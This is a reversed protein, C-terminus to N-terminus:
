KFGLGQEHTYAHLAVKPQDFADSARLADILTLILKDTVHEMIFIHAYSVGDLQETSLSFRTVISPNPRLFRVTLAGPSRDVHLDLKRWVTQQLLQLEDYARQALNELRVAKDVQDAYSHKAFYHWLLLASFGNRSGSLTSDRAGVYSVDVFNLLYKTKTLYVGSPWPAGIVKHGSVSISHIQTRFDFVPVDGSYRGQRKALELFPMYAAGLAGDVHFWFGNRRSIVTKDGVVVKLDRQYLNNAKLIPLLANVAKEVQDYEGKFTTGFNFNVAVPHGKAVFFQVLAKLADLNISGDNNSPVKEPWDGGIPSQGPYHARGYESFTPLLLLDKIKDISYHTDESYFLIPIYANANDEPLEEVTLGADEGGESGGETGTEQPKLFLGQYLRSRLQVPHDDHSAGGDAKSPIDSALLKGSLYDRANRLGYLNGETGGMSVVYGWYSDGDKDDHPAKANWLKAFYDLVAREIWKTNLMFNGSQFPDGINNLHLNLYDGLDDKYNLAQNAQYGLFNARYLLTYNKLQNLANNFQAAPLANEGLQFLSPDIGPVPPYDNFSTM